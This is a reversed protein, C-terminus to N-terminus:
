AFQCGFQLSLETFFILAVVDTHDHRFALQDERILEPAIDFIDLEIAYIFCHTRVAAGHNHRGTDTILTM